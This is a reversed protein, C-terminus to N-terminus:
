ALGKIGRIIPGKHKKNRKGLDGSAFVQALQRLADAAESHGESKDPIHSWRSESNSWKRRYSKLHDLGAACKVDDIYLYPFLDATQQIGWLLEQIRPVIRWSSSPMLERLMQKPSKNNLQGQRKHDADHPLYHTDFVLDLTQLWKVAHSYPEGWAEYFHILRLELGIQQCVWVACGDSSGIDWFTLCPHTEVVPMRGIRGDTYAQNIERLWFAGEPYELFDGEWVHGYTDPRRKLDEQREQELVKPFWPNDSWNVKTIRSNDPAELRLRRHTASDKSEPNWTVWVESGEERVTPMLKRWAEESVGEAEDIWALLLKAKSKISDLNHRLGAFVYKIRGDKSRIYREGIEYYDELWDVSRIAAKVEELSSEELSNLHERGCLIQGSIGATGYRYGEVASMLAFSRTKGSGRGGWSARIRAEGQFIPVLKPPLEIQAVNM